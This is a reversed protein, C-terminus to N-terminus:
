ARSAGARAARRRRTRPPRPGPPTGWRAGGGAALFRHVHAVRDVGEGALLPAFARGTPAATMRTSSRTCTGASRHRSPAAATADRGRATSSRGIATSIPRSSGRRGRQRRGLPADGRQGAPAARRRPLRDPRRQRDVAGLREGDPGTVPGGSALLPPPGRRAGRRGRDRSRKAACRACCRRRTRASRAARRPPAPRLARGVRAPAPREDVTSGDFALLRGDADAVRVREGLQASCPRCSARAAGRALPQLAREDGIDRLALAVHTVERGRAFPLVDLRFVTATARARGARAHGARRRARGRVARRRGRASPTSCTPSASASSSTAAWGHARVGRGRAAVIRLDRDVLGVRSTRRTCPSGAAAASPRSAVDRAARRARVAVVVAVAAGAVLCSRWAIM